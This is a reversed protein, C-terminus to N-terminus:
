NVDRTSLTPIHRSIKVTCTYNDSDCFWRLHLVMKKNPVLVRAPKNFM